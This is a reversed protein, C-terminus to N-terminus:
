AFIKRPSVNMYRDLVYFAIALSTVGIVAEGIVEGYRNYYYRIGAKKPKSNVEEQQVEQENITANAYAPIITAVSLLLFAINAYKQLAKM